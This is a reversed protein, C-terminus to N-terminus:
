CCLCLDGGMCECCSDACCLVALGDCFGCSGGGGYYGGGQYPHGFPRQYPNQNRPDRGQGNTSYPGYGQGQGSGASSGPHGYRQEYDYQARKTSDSLTDYAQNVESMKEEALQKLPHGEYHDPHYKKALEYYAKKIEQDTAGPKVGLVDYPNKQAM